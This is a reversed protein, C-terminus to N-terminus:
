PTGRVQKDLAFKAIEGLADRQRKTSRPAMATVARLLDLFEAVGPLPLPGVIPPGDAPVRQDAVLKIAKTLVEKAAETKGLQPFHALGRARLYGELRTRRKPLELQLVWCRRLFADPLAREENTTVIVLPLADIAAVPERRGLPSFRGNGLAELLGNPVESEAKDIEDILLVCGHKPDADRERSPPPEGVEAAQQLAGAWDFAWWLPGPRVYNRVALRRRAGDDRYGLAGSLQAESLRAVADYHWLLDRSETRADVVHEIYPRKLVKATARALQSKGIGPEGRVLLPRRSALAANVSRISDEDFVHTQEPFTGLADLDEQYGPAIELLAIPLRM